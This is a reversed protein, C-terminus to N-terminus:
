SEVEEFLGAQRVASPVFCVGIEAMVRSFRAPREGFYTLIQGQYGGQKGDLDAGLFAIRSTIMCCCDCARMLAQIARTETANNTLLIAETCRGAARERLLALVFQYLLPSSYPPNCWVRGTWPRNRGDQERSYWTGAQVIAQATECSAPDCDIAGLVRRVRRILAPPTYREDNPANGTLNTM